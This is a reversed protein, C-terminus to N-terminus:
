HQKANGLISSARRGGRFIMLMSRTVTDIHFFKIAEAIGERKGDSEAMLRQAQASPSQLFTVQFFSFGAAEGSKM